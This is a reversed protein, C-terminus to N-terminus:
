LGAIEFRVSMVKWSEQPVGGCTAPRFRWKALAQRRTAEFFAPSTASVQEVAKVRGDIGILIRVSVRGDRQARLEPGPYPPQFDGAFRMDQTAGILPPLAPAPEPLSVPGPEPVPPLPPVPPYITDTTATTNPSDTPVEPTPANPRPMTRVKADSKPPEKVPQPDPVPLPIQRTIFDKPKLKEIVDPAAYILGAILAGNIVLAAGFSVARSQNPAYRHEAVM